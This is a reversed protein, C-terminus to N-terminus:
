TLSAEPLQLKSAVQSVLASELRPLRLRRKAEEKSLWGARIQESLDAVAPHYGYRRAYAREFFAPIVCNTSNGPVVSAKWGARALISQLSARCRGLLPLPSAVTLTADEPSSTFSQLPRHLL